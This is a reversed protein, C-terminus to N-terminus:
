FSANMRETQEIKKVLSQAFFFLSFLFGSSLLERLAGLGSRIQKGEAYFQVFFKEWDCCFPIGETHQNKKCLFERWHRSLFFNLLFWGLLPLLNV